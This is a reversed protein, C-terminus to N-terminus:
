RDREPDFVAKCALIHWCTVTAPCTCHWAEAYYAVAYPYPKSGRVNAAFVGASRDAHDLSVKGSLLGEVANMQVKQSPTAAPRRTAPM